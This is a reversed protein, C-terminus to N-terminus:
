LVQALTLVLGTIGVVGTTVAIVISRTQGSVAAILEGRFIGIMQDRIADMRTELMERQHDMREEMTDFRADIADFRADITNFRGDVSEFRGDFSEFRADVADFRADVAAFRQDMRGALQDLDARTALETGPPPLMAFMTEAQEEGFAQAAARFLEGRRREDVQM